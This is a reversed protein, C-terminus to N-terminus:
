QSIPLQVVESLLWRGETGQQYCCWATLLLVCLGGSVALM